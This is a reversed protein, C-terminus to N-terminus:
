AQFIIIGLSLEMVLTKTIPLPGITM